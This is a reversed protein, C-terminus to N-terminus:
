PCGAFFANLFDFFDQSNLVTDGNFDSSPASAFFATLFDFFDQSNLVGNNNFDANCPPTMSLTLTGTAADYVATLGLGTNGLVLM